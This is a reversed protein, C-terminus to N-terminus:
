ESLRKQHRERNELKKEASKRLMVYVAGTGGHYRQASHFCMVEQIQELWAAVYSKMLAPPTSREGKGHVIIVTRVDLRQCQRLFKLVEDRAEKLSKRHLDLRAQLPYKGLRLKRYVGDQVGSRKFELFGDPKLMPASDISLYEPDSESLHVAAEQKAIHADTLNHQKQLVAKDQSIPRVDTMMQAFLDLEDEQTM